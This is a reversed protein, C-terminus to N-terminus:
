HQRYLRFTKKARDFQSVLWRYAAPDLSVVANISFGSLRRRNIILMISAFIRWDCSKTISLDSDVSLYDCNSISDQSTIM